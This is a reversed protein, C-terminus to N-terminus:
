LAANTTLDWGSESGASLKGEKDQKQYVTSIKGFALSFSVTPLDDGGGSGSIQLSSCFVNEMTVTYYPASAKKPDSGAKRVVLTAKDVHGGASMMQLLQATSTDMQVMVNLDSFSVKGAGGGGTASGISVPNSAGFSFSLVTLAKNASYTKDNTEGEVKPGGEFFLYADFAM